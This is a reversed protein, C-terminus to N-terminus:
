GARRPGLRRLLCQESDIAVEQFEDFGNVAAPEVFPVRAGGDVLVQYGTGVTWYVDTGDTAISSGQGLQWGLTTITGGDIPV